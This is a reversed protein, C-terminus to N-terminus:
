ILGHRVAWTVAQVAAQVGLRDCVVRMRRRVTRESVEMRRAIGEISLGDAFLAVMQLETSSILEAPAPHRTCDCSRVLRDGVISLGVRKATTVRRHEGRM